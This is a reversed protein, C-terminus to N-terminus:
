SWDAVSHPLVRFRVAGESRLTIGRLARGADDNRTNAQITDFAKMRRKMRPRLAQEASRIRQLRSGDALLMRGNVFQEALTPDVDGPTAIGGMQDM